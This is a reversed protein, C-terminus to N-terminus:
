QVQRLLLAAIVTSKSIKVVLTASLMTRTDICRTNSFRSSYHLVFTSTPKMGSRDDDAEPRQNVAAVVLVVARSNSSVEKVGLM